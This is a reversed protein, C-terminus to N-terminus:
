VWIQEPNEYYIMFLFELDSHVRHSCEAETGLEDKLKDNEEELMGYRKMLSRYRDLHCAALKTQKTVSANLEDVETKLRENLAELEKKLTSIETQQFVDIFYNM